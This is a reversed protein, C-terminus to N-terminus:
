QIYRRLVGSSRSFVDDEGFPEELISFCDGGDGDRVLDWPKSLEGDPWRARRMRPPRTERKTTVM